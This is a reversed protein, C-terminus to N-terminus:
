WTIKTIKSPVREGKTRGMPRGPLQQPASRDGMVFIKMREAAPQYTGRVKAPKVAICYIVRALLTARVEDNHQDGHWMEVLNSPLDAGLAQARAEVVAAQTVRVRDVREDLGEQFQEPGLEDSAAKTAVTYQRLEEEATRLAAETEELKVNLKRSSTKFFGLARREFFEIAEAELEDARVMAPRKCDGWGYQKKCGYYRDRKGSTGSQQVRPTMRGGCSACRVLGVLLYFEVDPGQRGGTSRVAHAAAWEGLDIIAEHAELNVYPKRHLEGLYVRNNVIWTIHQHVWQRSPPVRKSHSQPPKVGRRNLERAIAVWKWGAARKAFIWKVWRAQSRIVVLRGDDGKRYGYSAHVARGQAVHRRTVDLWNAALDEREWQASRLVNELYMEAMRDLKGGASDIREKVAVFSQGAEILDYIAAEGARKTRAFRRVNAVIIGDAIDEPDLCRRLAHQLGTRNVTKGSVSDTEDVTEIIRDGTHAVYEDTVDHQQEPSMFSEGERGHKQSVRIVRIFNRGTRKGPRPASAWM